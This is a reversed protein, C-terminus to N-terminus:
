ERWRIFMNINHFSINQRSNHGPMCCKLYLSPKAYVTNVITVYENVQLFKKLSPRVLFCMRSSQERVVFM